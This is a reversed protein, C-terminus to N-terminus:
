IAAALAALQAELATPGALVLDAAALLEPPAEDSAIAIRLARRTPSSATWADLAAFARRDGEDDGAFVALELSRAGLLESVATGKDVALPPRLECAMRAPWAVLGHADAIAAIADPDPPRRSPARWHLTLAIEGKREVLLDPWRREADRAAADIARAYPAIRPDVVVGNGDDRELGYQGVVIVRPDAVHMRAYVVPRGTVIAVLGLRPALESLAAVSGPRPMAHAPDDVIPALTGDFDVMLASAAPAAVVPALAPDLM